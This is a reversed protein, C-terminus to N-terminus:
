TAHFRGVSDDETLDPEGNEGAQNLGCEALLSNNADVRSLDETRDAAIEGPGADLIDVMLDVAANIALHHKPFTKLLRRGFTGYAMERDEVTNPSEVIALHQSGRAVARLQDAVKAGEPVPPNADFDVQCIARGAVGAQDHPEVLWPDAGVVKISVLYREVRLGPEHPQAAMSVVPPEQEIRRVLHRDSVPDRELGPKLAVLNFHQDVALGDNAM